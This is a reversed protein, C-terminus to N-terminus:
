SIRRVKPAVAAGASLEAKLRGRGEARCSELGGRCGHGEYIRHDGCFNGRCAKCRGIGLAAAAKRCGPLQCAEAHKRKRSPVSAVRPAATTAALILAPADCGPRQAEASAKAEASARHALLLTVMAVDDGGLRALELPTEGCENAANANAGHHLLAKALLFHGGLAAAHLATEGGSNTVDVDAGHQLLVRAVALNDANAAIHLATNGNDDRADVRTAELAELDEPDVAFTALSRHLEHMDTLLDEAVAADEENVKAEAAEAKSLETKLREVEQKLEKSSAADEESLKAEAKSLETKLRDVGRRLERCEPSNRNAVHALANWGLEDRQDTCAQKRLLTTVVEAHGGAAAEMLATQSARGEMNEPQMNVDAQSDLLAEVLDLDGVRSARMLATDQNHDLADVGKGGSAAALGGGMGVCVGAPAGQREREPTPLRLIFM